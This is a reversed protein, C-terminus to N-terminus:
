CCYGAIIAIIVVTVIIIIVVIAAMDISEIVRTNKVATATIMAQLWRGLANVLKSRTLHLVCVCVCVCVYVRARAEM